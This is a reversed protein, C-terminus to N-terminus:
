GVQSLSRRNRDAEKKGRTGRGKAELSGFSESPWDLGKGEMEGKLVM